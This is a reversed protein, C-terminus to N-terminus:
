LDYYYLYSSSSNPYQAERDVYDYVEKTKQQYFALLPKFKDRLEDTSMSKIMKGQDDYYSELVEEGKKKGSRYSFGDPQILM